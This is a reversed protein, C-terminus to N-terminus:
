QTEKNNCQKKAFEFANSVIAAIFKGFSRPLSSTQLYSQLLGSFVDSAVSLISNLLGFDFASLITKAQAVAVNVDSQNKSSTINEATYINIKFSLIFSLNSFQFAVPQKFLQSLLDSGIHCGFKGVYNLNDVSISYLLPETPKQNENM